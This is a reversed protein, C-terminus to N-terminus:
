LINATELKKLDDEHTPKVESDSNANIVSNLIKDLSYKQNQIPSKIDQGRAHEHKNEKNMINQNM